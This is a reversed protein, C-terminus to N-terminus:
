TVIEQKEDKSLKVKVWDAYAGFPKDSLSNHSLASHDFSAMTAKRLLSDCRVEDFQEPMTQGTAEFVTKLLDRAPLEGRMTLMLSEVVKSRAQIGKCFKANFGLVDQYFSSIAQSVGSGFSWDRKLEAYLVPVLMYFRTVSKVAPMPFPTIEIGKFHLRKAFESLTSSEHTKLSSFEVGLGKIRAKYATSLRPDGILIDDGLM